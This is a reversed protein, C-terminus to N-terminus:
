SVIENKTYTYRSRSYDAASILFNPKVCTDSIIKSSPALYAVLSDNRFVTLLIIPRVNAPLGQKKEPKPLPTLIGSKIEAPDKGTRAVTNLLTAIENYIESPGYKIYDVNLGAEWVSQQEKMNKSAKEIEETTFPTKLEAPKIITVM